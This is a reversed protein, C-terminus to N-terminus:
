LWKGAGVDFGFGVVGGFEALEEVYVEGAREEDGLGACLM